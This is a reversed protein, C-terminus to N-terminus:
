PHEAHFKSGQEPLRQRGKIVYRGPFAALATTAPNSSTTTASVGTDLNRLGVSVGNIAAGSPDSVVGQVNGSFQAYSPVSCVLVLRYLLWM